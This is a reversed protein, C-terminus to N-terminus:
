LELKEITKGTIGHKISWYQISFWENAACEIVAFSAGKRSRPAGVSGPNLVLLGDIEEWFPIHTHGYLAADAGASKAAAILSGLGTSVKSFHGHTIFFTHGAFDVTDASPLSHDFDGNGRVMNITGSFGTKYVALSVDESGDGLFVATDIQNKEAWTLVAKLSGVDGHTDSFVLLAPNKV